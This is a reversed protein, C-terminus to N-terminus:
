SGLVVECSSRLVDTAKGYLATQMESFIGLTSMALCFLDPSDESSFHRAGRLGPGSM